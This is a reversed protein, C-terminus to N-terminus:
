MIRRSEGANDCRVKKVHKGKSRLHKRLQVITTPTDMKRRLFSSFCNGTAEDMVLLWIKEKWFKKSEHLQYGFILREGVFTSERGETIRKSFEITPSKGRCM